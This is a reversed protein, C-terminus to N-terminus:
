CGEGPPAPSGGFNGAFHCALSSQAGTNLSSPAHCYPALSPASPLLHRYESGLPYADHCDRLMGEAGQSRRLRVSQTREPSVGLGKSPQGPVEPGFTSSFPSVLCFFCSAWELHGARRDSALTVPHFKHARSQSKSPGRFVSDGHRCLYLLRFGGVFVAKTTRLPSSM